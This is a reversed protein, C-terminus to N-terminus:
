LAAMHEAMRRRLAADPLRGALAGINERMHATSSTAPIACTVAPHSIAFKLFVQAWNACDIERAWGPLAKGKV